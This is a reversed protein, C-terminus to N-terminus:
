VSIERTIPKSDERARGGPWGALIASHLGAKGGARVILLGHDRWFKNVMENARSPDIGEGIGGAGRVLDKGPRLLADHLAEEINDRTWGEKRYIEYHEPSLVLMANCYEATKINGVVALSAALSTTLEQPTRSRMDIFGQIGDGQFLTVANSGPTCGRSVHLPVWQEDIEDEAFCFSIKGPNGLTSRDIDGPAGGGVNRVVLNLARGITANARNDNGLANIGSNMGIRKTVPGNAVIVPSSFCTSCLIGHLTFHPELATEVCGLVVPFYEPKCGAMVANIAVKEVTCRPLNPPIHGIVEQPDRTTGQLMRIIREPTPPIVPLGDSWGRDFCLEHEDEYPAPSISRSKIGTDGFKVRLVEAVGPEISKSGCGPQLEPLENGLSSNGTLNQWESRHWGVARSTENGNTISLISPVIEINLKFSTELSTDDRQGELDGLYDPDDQVYITLFESSAIERIAPEILTCTPCAKKVVLHLGDQFTM